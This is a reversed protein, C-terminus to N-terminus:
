GKSKACSERKRDMESILAQAIMTLNEQDMVAPDTIGNGFTGHYAPTRVASILCYLAERDPKYDSLLRRILQPLHNVDPCYHILEPCQYCTRGLTIVPKEYLVAEWASSGMITIVLDSARMLDHSDCTPSVLQVNYLRQISRYYGLLREGKMGPHEKVILRYGPPLSKAIHEIVALQNAAFPARIDTTFEPQVHLPFYVTPGPIPKSDFVLREAVQHRVLRVADEIVPRWPPTGDYSGIDFYGDQLYARLRFPVRGLRKWIQRPHVRYPSRLAPALFAPKTKHTRLNALFTEAEEAEALSLGRRRLEQYREIMPEWLGQATDIFYFCNAIPTPYPAMFTIDLRRALQSAAWEAACAIEGFIADPPNQALVISWFRHTAAMIRNVRDFPYARLIRDGYVLCNYGEGGITEDLQRLLSNCEEQTLEPVDRKLATALDYIECFIGTERLRKETVSSFTVASVTCGHGRKVAEALAPYFFRLNGKILFLIKM